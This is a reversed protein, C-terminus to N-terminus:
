EDVLVSPSLAGEKMLDVLAEIGCRRHLSAMPGDVKM